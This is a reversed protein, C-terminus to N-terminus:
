LQAEVAAIAREIRLASRDPAADTARLLARRSLKGERLGDLVARDLHEQATEGQAVDLLTRVPTTVSWAGRREIDGATLEAVHLVVAEDRRRFSQDVTLHVRGPDLDSLEHVSLATEHSVVARDGSWLSWRVYADDSSVPWDPFRYVGRDIRVWNGHDVHYKQSQYSYGMDLAQASTFYGAQDFALATLRRRLDQRPGPM